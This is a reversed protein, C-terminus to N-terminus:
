ESQGNDSKRSDFQKFLRFFSREDLEFATVHAHHLADKLELYYGTKLRAITMQQGEKLNGLMKM